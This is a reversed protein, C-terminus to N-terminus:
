FPIEDFDKPNFQPEAVQTQQKAANDTNSKQLFLVRDALISTATKQQGTKDQYTSYSIKGEIFVLSGKVLYKNCNEANKGFCVVHHWDTIEQNDKGRSSTALSFRCYLAQGSQKAEPNGGLRGILMVKNLM